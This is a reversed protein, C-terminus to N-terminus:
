ADEEERNIHRAAVQAVFDNLEAIAADIDPVAMRLPRNVRVCVDAGAQRLAGAATALTAGTTMVDDLLLIERGGIIGGASALGAIGGGGVSFYSAIM